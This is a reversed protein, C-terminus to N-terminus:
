LELGLGSMDFSEEDPIENFTSVKSSIGTRMAERVMSALSGDPANHVLEILEDDRGPRLTLRMTVVLNGNQRVLLATM